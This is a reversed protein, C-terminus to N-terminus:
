DVNISRRCVNIQALITATMRANDANNQVVLDPRRKGGSGSAFSYYALAVDGRNM